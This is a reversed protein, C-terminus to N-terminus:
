QLDDSDTGDADNDAGANSDTLTETRSDTDSDTDLPNDTDSESDGDENSDTKIDTPWRGTPPGYCATIVFPVAGAALWQLTRKLLVKKKPISKSPAKM